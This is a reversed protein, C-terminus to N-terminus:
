PPPRRLRERVPVDPGLDDGPEDVAEEEEEDGEEDEGFGDLADEFRGVDFVLAEEDNGHQPEQDVQDPDEYELMASSMM